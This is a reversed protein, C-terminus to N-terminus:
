NCIVQINKNNICFTYNDLTVRVQGKIFAEARDYEFPIVVKGTKDIFGWKDLQVAVLGECFGHIDRNFAFYFNEYKPPIIENGKKDIFGYQNNLRIAAMSESFSFCRDYKLPIIENGKKDIFGYKLNIAVVALNERFELAYNYKPEIIIKGTIADKYGWKNNEDQFLVLDRNEEPETASSSCGFIFPMLGFAFLLLVINFIKM